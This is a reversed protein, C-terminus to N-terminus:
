LSLVSRIPVEDTRVTEKEEEEETKKWDLGPGGSHPGKAALGAGLGLSGLTLCACIERYNGQTPILALPREGRSSGLGRLTTMPPLSPPSGAVGEGEPGQPPELEM